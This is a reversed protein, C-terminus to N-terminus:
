WSRDHISEFHLRAVLVAKDFDPTCECDSTWTEHIAVNKGLM